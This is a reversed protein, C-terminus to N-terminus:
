VFCEPHYLEGNSNVIKAKPEFGDDCRSCSMSDMNMISFYCFSVPNFCNKPALCPSQISYHIYFEMGFKMEEALLDASDSLGGWNVLADNVNNLSQSIIKLQM